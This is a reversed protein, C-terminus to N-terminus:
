KSASISSKKPKRGAKRPSNKYAKVSEQDVQWANGFRTAKLTGLKILENIRRRSVNLAAAAEATTLM